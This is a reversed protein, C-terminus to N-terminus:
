KLILDVVQLLQSLKSSILTKVFKILSDESNKSLVVVSKDMDDNPICIKM